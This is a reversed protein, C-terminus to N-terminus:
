RGRAPRRISTRADEPLELVQGVVLQSPNDILGRNLEMIEDARRATGLTDRAISRLTDYPRVRYVPRGPPRGGDRPRASTRSEIEDGEDGFIESNSAKKRRIPQEAARDQDDTRRSGQSVTRSNGAAALSVPRGDTGAPLILEPDLDEVAPVMIVDGVRLDKIDPHKAENAKWLARYYRGSGWYQRAITWYNEGREVLHETAEVRETHSAARPQAAKDTAPATQSERRGFGMGPNRGSGMHSPEPEFAVDRAAHSRLDGAGIPQESGDGAGSEHSASSSSETPDLPVKGSNPIVIWGPRSALKSRSNELKPEAPIGTPAAADVPATRETQTARESAPSIEKIPQERSPAPASVAAPASLVDQGAISRTPKEELDNPAPAAPAPPPASPHAAKSEPSQEGGALKKERAEDNQMGPATVPPEVDKPKGPAVGETAMRLTSDTQAQAAPAIGPPSAGALLNADGGLNPTPDFPKNTSDVGAKPHEPPRKEGSPAAAVPTEGILNEPPKAEGGPAAAIATEGTKASKATDDVAPKPAPEAVITEGPNAGKASDNGARKPAAEPLWLDPPVDTKTQAKASQDTASAPPGADTLITAKTADSAPAPLPVDTSETNSNPQGQGTGSGAPPKEPVAAQALASPQAGDHKASEASPAPLVPEASAENQATKTQQSDAAPPKPPDAAGGAPNGPGGPKPTDSPKGSAALAGGTQSGPNKSDDAKASPNGNIANPLDGRGKGSGSQSYLIGGLIVVSAGAAISHRPYERILYALVGLIAKAVRQLIALLFGLIRRMVSLGAALEEADDPAADAADDETQSAHTVAHGTPDAEQSGPPFIVVPEPM